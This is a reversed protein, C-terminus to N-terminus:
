NRNINLTLEGTIPKPHAPEVIKWFITLKSAIRSDIYFVPITDSNSMYQNLNDMTLMIPSKVHLEKDLKKYKYETTGLNLCPFSHGKALVPKNMVCDICEVFSNNDFVVTDNSFNIEIDCKGTPIKGKNKIVCRVPILSKREFEELVSNRIQKEKYKLYLGRQSNYIRYNEPSQSLLVWPNDYPNQLHAEPLLQTEKNLRKKVEDEIDFSTSISVSMVDTGNDFTIIPKSKRSVIPSIYRTWISQKVFFGIVGVISSIIDLFATLFHIVIAM